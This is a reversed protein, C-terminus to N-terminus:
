NLKMLNYAIIVHLDFIFYVLEHRKRQQKALFM